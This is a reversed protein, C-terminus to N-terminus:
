GGPTPVTPGIPRVVITPQSPLTGPVFAGPTVDRGLTKTWTTSWDQLLPYDPLIKGPHVFGPINKSTRYGDTLQRSEIFFDIDSQPGFLTGKRPSVGTVSSGRVGVTADTVGSRVLADQLQQAATTFQKPLNFGLPVTRTAGNIPVGVVTPSEVAANGIKSTAGGAFSPGPGGARRQGSAAVVRGTGRMPVVLSDIPAAIETVMSAARISGSALMTLSAGVAGLGQRGQGNLYTLLATNNAERVGDVRPDWGRLQPTNRATQQATMNSLTNRVVDAEWSPNYPASSDANLLTGLTDRPRFVDVLSQGGGTGSNADTAEQAAASDISFFPTTPQDSEYSGPVLVTERIGGFPTRSAEVVTEEGRRFSREFDYGDNDQVGGMGSYSAGAALKVDNARVAPSATAQGFAGVM